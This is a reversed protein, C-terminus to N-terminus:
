QPLEAAPVSEAGLASVLAEVIKEADRQRLQEYRIAWIHENFALNRMEVLLKYRITNDRLVGLNRGRTRSGAGMAPLLKEGFDRSAVDTHRRDQQYFLTIANGIPENNDAHFSLFVQRDVPTHSVAKQAIDVRKKLYSRGGKPWTAPKNSRNWDADNFVESRDHVFTSSEPTNGRLLHNAALITLTVDAGHAKLLAYVRLALDYVYEDEVVYYRNGEEDEASVVTGPDIGGHGPDLVFHWGALRDDLRGMAEAQGKFADFLVRAHQYSAGPSIPSEETYTKGTQRIAKPKAFFYPGNDATVGAVGPVSIKLKDWDLSGIYVGNDVRTGLLPRVKLQQGPHILSGRLSNLDRLERLSMQHLRAIDTLNDGREVVYTALKTQAPASSSDNGSLATVKLVQGPYIRDSSLDNIRRLDIVTMGYTRAIEWLADGREVIHSTRDVELLRLQQGVFIRDNELGNIQKLRAVSTDFRQAIDSLTDGHEVVHVAEDVPAPIIRLRQGPYIRSGRLRNLQRLLSVTTDFKEAINSLSDGSEVVYWERNQDLIRLQQGIGLRDDTLENWTQIDNVTVGYRQAIVTLNEGRAVTHVQWEEAAVVGAALSLGAVVPLLLRGLRQILMRLQHIELSPSLICRTGSNFHRDFVLM